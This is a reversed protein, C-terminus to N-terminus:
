GANPFKIVADEIPIELTRAGASSSDGKSAEEARRRDLRDKVLPAGLSGLGVPKM